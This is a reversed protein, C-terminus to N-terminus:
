ILKLILKDWFCYLLIYFTFVTLDSLVTLCTLCNCSLCVIRSLLIYFGSMKKNNVSKSYIMVFNISVQPNSYINLMFTWLIHFITLLIIINFCPLNLCLFCSTPLIPILIAKYLLRKYCNCIVRPQQDTICLLCSCLNFFYSYCSFWIILPPLVM